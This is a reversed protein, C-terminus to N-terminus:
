LFFIAIQQAVRNDETDIEKIIGSNTDTLACIYATILGNADGAKVNTSKVHIENMKLRPKYKLEKLDGIPFKLTQIFEHNENLRLYGKSVAKALANIGEANDARKDDDVKKFDLWKEVEKQAVEIAIVDTKM